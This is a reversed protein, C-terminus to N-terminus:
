SAWRAGERILAAVRTARAGVQRAWRSDLAATAATEYDAAARAAWMRRFGMLRPVGAAHFARQKTSPRYRELRNRAARRELTQSARIYERMLSVTPLRKLEPSLSSM